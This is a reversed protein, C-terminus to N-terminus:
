AGKETRRVAQVFARVKEPDKKGPRAEVGSSVDVGWPQLVEIAEAVNDPTLGGAVVLKLGGQRMGEAIPVAKRWDFSKGTGGPRQGNGSDLFFTDFVSQPMPPRDESKRHLHAFNAALAKVKDEDDLFEAVPFSTYVRPPQPLGGLGTARQSGDARGDMTLVLQIATLGADYLISLCDANGVFVGVKEVTQPLQKVIERATEVDVKRPSKEYFVFGLADAGADVAVLADELNTIGCIKVWTM